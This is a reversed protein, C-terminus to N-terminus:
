EESESNSDENALGKIAQIAKSRLEPSLKLFAAQDYLGPFNEELVQGFQRQIENWDIGNELLDVAKTFVASDKISDTTNEVKGAIQRIFEQVGDDKLGPYKLDLAGFDDTSIRSVRIDSFEPDVVIKIVLNGSSIALFDKDELKSAHCVGLSSLEPSIRVEHNSSTSPLLHEQPSKGLVVLITTDPDVSYRLIGQFNILATM